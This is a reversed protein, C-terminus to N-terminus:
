RECAINACAYARGIEEEAKLSSARHRSQALLSNALEILELPLDGSYRPMLDYLAKEIARNSM